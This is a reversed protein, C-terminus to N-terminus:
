GPSLKHCSKHLQATLAIIMKNSTHQLAIRKKTWPTSQLKLKHLQATLAIIMKNSTRQLATRSKMWPTSQLIHSQLRLAAYDVLHHLKEVNEHKATKM